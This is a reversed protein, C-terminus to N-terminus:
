GKQALLAPLAEYRRLHSDLANVTQRLISEAREQGDALVNRTAMRAVLPMLLVSAAALAWIWVALRGKM